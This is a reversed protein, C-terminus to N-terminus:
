MEYSSIRHLLKREFYTKRIYFNGQNDGEERVGISQLRQIKEWRYLPFPINNPSPTGEVIRWKKLMKEVSACTLPNRSVGNNHPLLFAQLFGTRQSYHFISLLANYSRTMLNFNGFSGAQFRIYAGLNRCGVKIIKASMGAIVDQM